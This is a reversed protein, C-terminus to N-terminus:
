SVRPRPKSQNEVVRDVRLAMHDVATKVGHIAEMIEDRTERMGAKTIYTQAIHLKHEALDEAVKDAKDAAKTIKSEVYRWWGFLAGLISVGFLIVGMIEAGSM